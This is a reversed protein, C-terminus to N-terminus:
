IKSCQGEEFRRRWEERGIERHGERPSGDTRFHGARGGNGCVVKGCECYYAHNAHARAKAKARVPDNPRGRM